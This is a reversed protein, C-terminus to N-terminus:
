QVRGREQQKGVMVWGRQHVAMMMVAGQTVLRGQAALSRVAVTSMVQQARVM